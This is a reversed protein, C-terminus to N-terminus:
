SIQVSLPFYTPDEWTAFRKLNCFFPLYVPLVFLYIRDLALRLQGFTIRTRSAKPRTLISCNLALPTNLATDFDFFFTAYALSRRPIVITSQLTTLLCGRFLLSAHYTMKFQLGIALKRLWLVRLMKSTEPLTQSQYRLYNFKASMSSVDTAYLFNTVLVDSFLRLFREIEEQDYLQRQEEESLDSEQQQRDQRSESQTFADVSFSRKPYQRLSPPTNSLM